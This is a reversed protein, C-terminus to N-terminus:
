AMTPFDRLNRYMHAEGSDILCFPSSPIRPAFKWARHRSSFRDIADISGQGTKADVSGDENSGTRYDGRKM